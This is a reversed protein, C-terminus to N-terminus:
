LFYFVLGLRIVQLGVGGDEVKASENFLTNLGYYGQFNFAGYGFSFSPGYQFSNLEPIATQTVTNDPQQFTSKFRFVYGLKVGAHIRWFSYKSATSTRWRYELPFELTYTTFRNVEENVDDNIITYISTEGDEREGIFLNQNYTDIALGAGIGIARNRRKNIPFDRIFGGQIGASLGNQTFGTPANSLLNFTVGIYVQDERYLSDVSQLAADVDTQCNSLQGFLLLLLFLNCKLLVLKACLYYFQSQFQQM